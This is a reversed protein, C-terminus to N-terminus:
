SFEVLFQSLIKRYKLDAEFFVNSETITGFLTSQKVVCVYVYLLEVHLVILECRNARYEIYEIYIYVRKESM